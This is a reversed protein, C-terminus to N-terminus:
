RTIPGCLPSLSLVLRVTTPEILRDTSYSVRLFQSHREIIHICTSRGLSVGQLLVTIGTSPYSIRELAHCLCKTLITGKLRGGISKLHALPNRYFPTHTATHIWLCTRPAHKHRRCHSSYRVLLQTLVRGPVSQWPQATHSVPRRKTAASPLLSNIGTQSLNRNQLAAPYMDNSKHFTHGGWCGAMAKIFPM